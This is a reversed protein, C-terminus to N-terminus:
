PGPPLVLGPAPPCEARRSSVRADDHAGLEARANVGGTVRRLSRSARLMASAVAAGGPAPPLVDNRRAPRRRRWSALLLPLARQAQGDAGAGGPALPAVSRSGPRRRAALLAQSSTLLPPPPLTLPSSPLSRCFLVSAITMTALRVKKNRALM